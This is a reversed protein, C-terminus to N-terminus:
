TPDEDREVSGRYITTPQVTVNISTGAPLMFMPQTRPLERDKRVKERDLAPHIDDLENLYKVAALRAFDLESSEAVTAIIEVRNEVPMRSQVRMQVVRLKEDIESMTELNAKMVRQVTKTSRGVMQALEQHTLSPDAASLGLIQKEIRDSTQPNTGSM